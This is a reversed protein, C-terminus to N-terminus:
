SARREDVDRQLHVLADLADAGLDSMPAGTARMTVRVLAEAWGAATHIRAHLFGESDPIPSQITYGAHLAAQVSEFIQIGNSMTTVELGDVKFRGRV